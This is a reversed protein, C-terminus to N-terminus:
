KGVIKILSGKEVQDTLEMSNLIALEEMRDSAVGLKQFTLQVTATAPVTKILVREPKVNIKKQDTLKKF